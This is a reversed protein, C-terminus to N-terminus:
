ILRDHDQAMEHMPLHLGAVVGGVGVVALLGLLAARARLARALSVYTAVLIGGAVLAM